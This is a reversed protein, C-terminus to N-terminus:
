GIARRLKLQVRELRETGGSMRKRELFREELMERVTPDIEPDIENPRKSSGSENWGLGGGEDM